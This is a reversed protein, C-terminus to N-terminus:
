PGLLGNMRSPINAQTTAALLGSLPALYPRPPAPPNAGLLRDIIMQRQAPNTAMLMEAASAQVQPNPGFMRDAMRSVLNKGLGIGLTGAAAPLGGTGLAIATPMVLDTASPPGQDAARREATQPGGMVDFKTRFMTRENHVTQMFQNFDADNDFLHRVRNEAGKSGTIGLSEDGGYGRNDVNERLKQAAGMRYYQLDTPSMGKVMGGVEDPTHSLFAYGDKMVGQSHSPGGWAARAAAYDPNLSDLEDLYARQVGYLARGEDTLKGTTPDRASAIQQDLGRKAADLTRMNMRGGFHPVGAADYTVSYDAPNFPLGQELAERRHQDMGFKLGAQLDPDDTFQKLRDSYIPRTDDMATQYLPASNARKEADLAAQAEVVNRTPSINQDILTHLRDGAGEDRRVLAGGPMLPGGSPGGIIESAPTDSRYLTGTLRQVPKGGVDALTLPENTSGLRQGMTELNPGGAQATKDTASQILRLAQEDIKDAATRAPAEGPLSPLVSRELWPSLLGGLRMFPPLAGGLVAGLLGGYGAGRAAEGVSAANDAAGTVGGFLTGLGASRLTQAILSPAEVMPVGAGGGGLGLGGVLNLLTNAWPNAGAYSERGRQMERSAQPYDFPQGGFVWRNAALGLAQAPDSLGLTFGHAVADKPGYPAAPLIYDGRASTDTASPASRNQYRAWPDDDAPTDPRLAGGVALGGPAANPNRSQYRAWPDDPTDVM